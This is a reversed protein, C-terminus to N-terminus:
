TFSGFEMVLLDKKWLAKMAIMEGSDLNELEYDPAQAGANPAAQFELFPKMEEKLDFSQYNYNKERQDAM